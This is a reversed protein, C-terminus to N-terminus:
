QISKEDANGGPVDAVPPAAPEAPKEPVPFLELLFAAREQETEFFAFNSLAETPVVNKFTYGKGNFRLMWHNNGVAGEVRGTQVIRGSPSREDPRIHVFFQGKM